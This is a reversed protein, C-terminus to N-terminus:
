PEIRKGAYDFCWGSDDATLRNIVSLMEGTSYDPSFLKNDPVNKQFPESLGTDVTGPHLGVILAQRNKRALEISMTRIIQNLAAKSARYSHWGGIRNDGISGVRASLAALTSKRDRDLLPLFHKAALAPAITNIRLVRAMMEAELASTSKEPAIDDGHLIGTAILCLQIPGDIAQAAARVQEEDTIDCGTFRVKGSSAAPKRSLAHVRVVADHAALQNVFASGIGGGAGFVVATIDKGFSSLDVTM